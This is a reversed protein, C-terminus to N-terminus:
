RGRGLSEGFRELRQETLGFHGREMRSDTCQPGVLDLGMVRVVQGAREPQIQIGLPDDLLLAEHEGVRDGTQELYPGARVVALELRRRGQQVLDRGDHRPGARVLDAQRVKQLGPEREPAAIRTDCEM